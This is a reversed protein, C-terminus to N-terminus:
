TVVTVNALSDSVQSYPLIKCFTNGLNWESSLRTYILAPIGSVFAVDAVTLNLLFCNTVTRMEPYWLVAAAITLNAIISLLFICIFLLVELVMESKNEGVESFFSFFYRPGWGCIIDEGFFYSSNYSSM